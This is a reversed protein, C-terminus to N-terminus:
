HFCLSCPATHNQLQYKYYSKSNQSEDRSKKRMGDKRESPSAKSIHPVVYRELQDNLEDADHKKQDSRLM